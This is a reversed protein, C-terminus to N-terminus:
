YIYSKFQIYMFIHYKFTPFSVNLYFFLFDLSLLHMSYFIEQLFALLNIISILLDKIYALRFEFSSILINPM